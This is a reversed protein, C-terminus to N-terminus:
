RSPSAPAGTREDGARWRYFSVCNSGQCSTRVRVLDDVADPVPDRRPHQAIAIGGRVLVDSRQIWRLVRETAQCEYPPDFFILDFREGQRQLKKLARDVDAGMVRYEERIGCRELNGRLVQLGRREREVFVARSAGRSLGEIGIAGTGAYLDLIAKGRVSDGLIDFLSAKLRDGTPRIGLDKITSLHRGKYKGGIVRM